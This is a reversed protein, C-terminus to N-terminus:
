PATLHPGRPPPLAVRLRRRPLRISPYAVAVLLVLGQILGQVAASAGLALIFQSLMTMFLAGIIAAILSIRTGSVAAGAVLLASISSMLYTGGAASTGTGINGAILVGTIGFLLGALSYASVLALTVPLGAARAADPNSGTAVFRRGFTTLRIMVLLVLVVGLAIWFSTAIGGVRSTAFTKLSGSIMIQQGNSVLYALGLFLGNSALTAVLPTLALWSILLGNLAGALVGAVLAVVVAPVPAMGSDTLKAVVLGSLVIIGALSFDFGRQMVVVAQGLTAVALMGFYPMMNALSRGTAANPTAILMVVYMVATAVWVWKYPSAIVWRAIARPTSKGSM